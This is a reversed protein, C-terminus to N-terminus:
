LKVRMLDKAILTIGKYNKKVDKKVQFLYEKAVHTLITKKVNCQEALKGADEGNMHSELKWSKPATSELIALDVDMCSEKLGKCYSSDGSYCISKKKNIIKYSLCNMNKEHEVEFSKILLKGVKVSDNCLEKIKIRNLNKSKELHFTKLLNQFDKKIGRPGYITYPLKLKKKDPAYLIFLAFPVLESSHDAHMHSIFINKIEYYDIELKALQHSTGQGFDFLIKNKGDKLLYSSCKRNKELVFTGSGLIILEM